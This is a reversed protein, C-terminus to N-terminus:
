KIESLWDRLKFKVQTDGLEGDIYTIGKLDSAVKPKGKCVFCVNKKGLAGMFLGYEFLVNDRVSDYAELASKSNWSKDDANFVFIAAQVRETIAILADITSTGPIFINKGSDCWLLPKTGLEELKVAINEMHTKAEMSSGIFIEMDKEEKGKEQKRFIPVVKKNSDPLVKFDVNEMGFELLEEKDIEYLIDAREKIDNITFKRGCVECYYEKDHILKHEYITCIEGCSCKLKYKLTIIRQEHLDNILEHAERDSIDLWDIFMDPYINGLSNVSQLKVKCQLRNILNQKM